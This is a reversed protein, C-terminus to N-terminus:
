GAQGLMYDLYQVFQGFDRPAGRLINGNIFFTPTADVFKSLGYNLNEQVTQVYKRTKLCDTFKAQDPIGVKAAYNILAAESLDFQNAFLVDHYEWFKGQENACHSALAAPLANPHQQLPFDKYVFRIKSGYRDKLLGYMDRQFSGCFPCEFDSFEVITVKADVPGWAPSNGADIEQRPIPTATPETTPVAAVAQRPIQAINTAVMNGVESKVDAVLSGTTATFVAWAIIYGCIFFVVAITIYNITSRRVPITESRRRPPLPPAPQPLQIPEALPRTPPTELSSAETVSDFSQDSM